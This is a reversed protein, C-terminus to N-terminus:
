TELNRLTRLASAIVDPRTPCGTARIELTQVADALTKLREPAQNHPAKAYERCEAALRAALKASIQADPAPFTPAPFRARSIRHSQAQAARVRKREGLLRDLDERQLQRVEQKIEESRQAAEAKLREAAELSGAPLVWCFGCTWGDTDYRLRASERITPRPDRRFALATM